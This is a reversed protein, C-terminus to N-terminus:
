NVLDGADRCRALTAEFGARAGALDGAEMLMWALVRDAWRALLGSVGATVQAAERAVQVAQDLDGAGALAQSMIGLAGLEARPFVAERAM